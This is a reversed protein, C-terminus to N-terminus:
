LRAARGCAPRRAHSCWGGRCGRLSSPARLLRGPFTMLNVHHARYFDSSCTKPQRIKVSLIHVCTLKFGSKDKIFTAQFQRGERKWVRCPSWRDRLVYAARWGWGHGPDLIHRRLGSPCLSGPCATQELGRRLAEAEPQRIPPRPPYTSRSCCRPEAQWGPHELATLLLLTHGSPVLAHWDSDRNEAAQTKLCDIFLTVRRSAEACTPTYTPGQKETIFIFERTPFTEPFSM